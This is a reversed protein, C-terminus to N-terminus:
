LNVWATGDYGQLVPGGVCDTCYRIMGTVPTLPRQASTGVPVIMAGTGKVDLEARPTNAGVDTTANITTFGNRLMTFSNRRSSNNSGNGITFLIENPDYGEGPYATLTDNYHGFASMANGNVITGHNAALGYVSSVINSAGLAISSYGSNINNIGATFTGAGPATNLLSLNRSTRNNFGFSASNVVDKYIINNLGGAISAYGSDKNGQGLAVGSQFYVSNDKGISGLYSGDAFNNLGFISNGSGSRVINGDGSVLNSNGTLIDNGTGFASSFNGSLISNAYGMTNNARGAVITNGDGTAFHSFGAKIVNEFGLASSYSTLFNIRNRLGLAVSAFGSDENEQGLSVASQYGAVNKYGIATSYLGTAKNQFGVAVSSNSSATDAFGFAWAYIGGAFSNVGEAHSYNGSAVLGTGTTAIIGKGNGATGVVKDNSQFPWSAGSASTTLSAWVNNTKYLYICNSDINFIIMGNLPSPIAQMQLTTMRPLTLAKSTSELELLSGASISDPNNGIKVQAMGNLTFLISILLVIKKQM